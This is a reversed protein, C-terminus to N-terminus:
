GAAWGWRRTRGPRHARRRRTVATGPHAGDGGGTVGAPAGRQPHRPRGHARVGEDPHTAHVLHAPAGQGPRHADPHHHHVRRRAAGGGPQVVGLPQARQLALPQVGQEGPPSRRPRDPVGAVVLDVRPPDEDRQPHGAQPRQLLQRQRRLAQQQVARVVPQVARDRGGALLGEEVRELGGRVGGRDLQGAQGGGCRRHVQQGLRVPAAGRHRRGRHQGLDLAVPHHARQTLLVVPPAPLVVLAVAGRLVECGQRLVAGARPM